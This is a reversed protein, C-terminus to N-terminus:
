TRRSRCRARWTSCPSCTPRAPRWRRSRPSGHRHDARPDRGHGGRDPVPRPGQVHVPRAAGRAAPVHGGDRDPEADGARLVARRAPLALRRGDGPAGADGGAAGVADEADRPQDRRRARPQRLDARAPLPLVRSGGEEVLINTGIIDAPMLDPTFQIRNFSCAVVDALTRVLLTKGLGPVGELLVHGGALLVIVTQRVLDAQGVIVRGVEAEIGRALEVFRDPELGAAAEVPAAPAAPLTPSQDM